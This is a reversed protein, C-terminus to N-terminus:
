FIHLSHNSCARESLLLHCTDIRFPSPSRFTTSVDGAWGPPMGLPARPRPPVILIGVGCALCFTFRAQLRPGLIANKQLAFSRSLSQTLFYKRMENYLGFVVADRIRSPPM